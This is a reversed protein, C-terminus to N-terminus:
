RPPEFLALLLPSTFLVDRDLPRNPLDYEVVFSVGPDGTCMTRPFLRLTARLPGDPALWPRATRAFRVFTLQDAEPLASLRVGDSGLLGNRLTDPVRGYLQIGELPLDRVTPFRARLAAVQAFNLPALLRALDDLAVPAGPGLKDRWNEIIAESLNADDLLRHDGDV